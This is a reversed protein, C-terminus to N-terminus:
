TKLGITASVATIANTPSSIKITYTATPDPCFVKTALNYIYQPDSWRMM